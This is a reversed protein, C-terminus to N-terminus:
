EGVIKLKHYTAKFKNGKVNYMENNEIDAKNCSYKCMTTMYFFNNFMRDYPDDKINDRFSYPKIYVYVFGMSNLVRDFELLKDIYQRDHRDMYGYVYESVHFENLIVNQVNFVNIAHILTAIKEINLERTDDFVSIGNYINYDNNNNIKDIFKYNINKNIGEVVIRNNLMNFPLQTQDYVQM